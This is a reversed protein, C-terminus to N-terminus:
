NPGIDLSSLIIGDLARGNSWGPFKWVDDHCADIAALGWGLVLKVVVQTTCHKLTWVNWITWGFGLVRGISVLGSCYIQSLKGCVVMLLATLKQLRRFWHTEVPSPCKLRIIHVRDLVFEATESVTYNITNITLCYLVPEETRLLPCHACGTVAPSQLAM